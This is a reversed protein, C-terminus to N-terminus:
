ENLLLGTEKKLGQQDLITINGRNNKRTILRHKQFDIIAKSVTERWTNLYDALEQHTAAIKLNDGDKEAIELLLEALRERISSYAVRELKEELATLALATTHNVFTLLTAYASQNNDKKETFENPDLLLQQSIKLVQASGSCVMATKEHQAQKSTSASSFMHGPKARWLSPNHKKGKEKAKISVEGDLLVYCANCSDGKAYIIDGAKLELLEVAPYWSEPMKEALSASDEKLYSPVANFRLGVRVQCLLDKNTKTELELKKLDLAEIYM